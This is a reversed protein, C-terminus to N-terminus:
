FGEKELLRNHRELERSCVLNATDGSDLVAVSDEELVLFLGGADLTASFSQERGSKTEDSDLHEVKQVSAPIDTSITSLSELM